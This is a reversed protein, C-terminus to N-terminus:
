GPWTVLGPADPQPQTPRHCEFVIAEASKELTNLERSYQIAYRYNVVSVSQVPLCYFCLEIYLQKPNLRTSM